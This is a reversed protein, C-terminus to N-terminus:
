YSALLLSATAASSSMFIKRALEFFVFYLKRISKAAEMIDNYYNKFVSKVLVSFAIKVNLGM